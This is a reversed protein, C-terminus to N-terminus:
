TQGNITWKKKEKYEGCWEKKAVEPWNFVPKIFEAHASYMDFLQVVPKAAYRHCFFKGYMEKAYLCTECSLTGEKMM